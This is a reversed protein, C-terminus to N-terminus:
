TGTEIIENRPLCSVTVGLGFPYTNKAELVRASIITAGRLKNSVSDADLSTEEGLDGGFIQVQKGDIARWRCAADGDQSMKTLSWSITINLVRKM